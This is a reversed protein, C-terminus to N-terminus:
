PCSGTATSTRSRCRKRILATTPSQVSSDAPAGSRSRGAARRGIRRQAFRAEYPSAGARWTTTRSRAGPRIARNVYRTIPRERSRRDGIAHDGGRWRRGAQGKPHPFGAGPTKAESREAMNKSPRETLSAIGGLAFRKSIALV